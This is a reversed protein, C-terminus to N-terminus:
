MPFDCSILFLFIFCVILRTLEDFRIYVEPDSLTSLASPTAIPSKTSDLDLTILVFMFLIFGIFIFLNCVFMSDSSKALNRSRRASVIENIRKSAFSNRQHIQILDCFSAGYGFPNIAMNNTINM